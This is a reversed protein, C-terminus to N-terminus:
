RIVLGLSAVNVLTANHYSSLVFSVGQERLTLQAEEQM